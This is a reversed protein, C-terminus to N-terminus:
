IDFVSEYKVAEGTMSGYFIDGYDYHWWEYPYNTFESKLMVNYLLRRNLRATINEDTSEFYCTHAKFSFDDFGTGMDILNGDPDTITLDIAGGSSHVYSPNKSKDPFSVFERAKKHLEDAPLHSYKENKVLSEYYSDYLYKQVEYPRWSDWVTLHYGEPLLRQAKILRDAAGKRLYAKSVAGAINMKHYQMQVLIEGHSYEYIDVLEESEPCFETQVPRFEQQPIRTDTYKESM